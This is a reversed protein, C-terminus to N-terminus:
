RQLPDGPFIGRTPVTRGMVGSETIVFRVPLDGPGHPVDSFFQCDYAIGFIAARLSPDALFRDYYGGGRGVRNGHCDFARGPVLLLDLQAPGITEVPDPELIGIAGPRLDNMKYLRCILMKHEARIVKPVYIEKRAELATQIIPLMDVEDALSVFAMIKTARAYEPLALLHRTILQSRDQKERAPMKAILDRVHLRCASKTLDKV